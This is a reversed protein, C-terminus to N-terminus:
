VVSLAAIEASSIVEVDDIDGNIIENDNNANNDLEEPSGKDLEDDNNSKVDSGDDVSEVDLEPQGDNNATSTTEDNVPM